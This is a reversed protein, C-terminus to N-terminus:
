YKRWEHILRRNQKPYTPQQLDDHKTRNHRLAENECQVVEGAGELDLDEELGHEAQEQKPVLATEPISKFHMQNRNIEHNTSM